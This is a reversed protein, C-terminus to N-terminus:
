ILKTLFLITLLSEQSLKVEIVNKEIFNNVYSEMDFNKIIEKIIDARAGQSLGSGDHYHRINNNKNKEAMESKEKSGKKKAKKEQELAFKQQLLLIEPPLEVISLFREVRNKMLDLEPETEAVTAKSLSRKPQRVIPMMESVEDGLEELESEDLNAM